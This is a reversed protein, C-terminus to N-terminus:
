TTSRNNRSLSKFIGTIKSKVSKKEQRRRDTESDALSLDSGAPNVSPLLAQIGATVLYNATGSDELSSQRSKSTLQKLKGVKSDIWWKSNPVFKWIFSLIPLKGPREEEQNRTDGARVIREAGLGDIVQLMENFRNFKLWLIKKKGISASTVNWIAVTTFRDTTMRTTDMRHTARISFEFPFM